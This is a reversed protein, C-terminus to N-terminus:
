VKEKGDPVAEEEFMADSLYRFQSRIPYLGAVGLVQLFLIATRRNEYDITFVTGAAGGWGATGVTSLRGGKTVAPNTVMSMNLGFGLGPGIAESFGGEFSCQSIEQNNPLHNSRMLDVSDKSLLRRASLSVGHNLLCTAFKSYDTITSVLGGGGSFFGPSSLRDREANTSLRYGQGVAPEYCEVLRHHHEAPVTFFTDHMHLPEFIETQLFQELTQGTIIEIIYGLVDTNLGYHFKTGPHFCLPTTAIAECLTKIDIFRFWTSVVEMSFKAKLIQDSLNNGFIGYSIGSTHSLLHVIRVPEKPVELIPDAVTGGVVVNIDKFAPIWKSAEDQLNILGREVLMMIAVGIMPKTMSYIRFLADRTYPKQGQGADVGHFFLEDANEDYVAAMIGPIAGSEVWSQMWAKLSEEKSSKSGFGSM